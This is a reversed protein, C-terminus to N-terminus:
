RRELKSSRPLEPNLEGYGFTKSLWHNCLFKKGVCEVKVMEIDSDSETKKTAQPAKAARNKAAPIIKDNDVMM